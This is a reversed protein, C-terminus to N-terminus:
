WPCSVCPPTGTVAITSRSSVSQLEIKAAWVHAKLQALTQNTTLVVLTILERMKDTLNGQYFVEGFIFRNLMEQLDPDTETMPGTHEGFLEEFKKESLEVRNM